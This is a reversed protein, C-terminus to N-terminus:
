NQLLNFYIHSILPLLCMVYPSILEEDEEERLNAYNLHAALGSSQILWRSSPDHILHASSGGDLLRILMGITKKTLDEEEEKIASFFGAVPLRCCSVAFLCGGRRCMLWLLGSRLCM